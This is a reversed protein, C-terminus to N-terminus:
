PGSAPLYDDLTSGDGAPTGTGGPPPVSPPVPRAPTGMSQPKSGTRAEFDAAFQEAVQKLSEALEEDSEGTIRERYIEPLDAVEEAHAVLFRTRILEAELRAKEAREAELAEQAEKREAIARDTEDMQARQAEIEAAKRAEEAAEERAKQIAAKMRKAQRDSEARIRAEVAARQEETLGELPDSDTDDGAPTGSTPPEPPTTADDDGDGDDSGGATLTLVGLMMLGIMTVTLTM